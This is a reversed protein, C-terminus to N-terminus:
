RASIVASLAAVLDACIEGAEGSTPDLVAVPPLGDGPVVARMLLSEMLERDDRLHVMTQFRSGRSTRRQSIGVLKRGDLTVEGPGLGAFCVVESLRTREEPGDHVALRGVLRGDLRELGDRWWGGVAVMSRRLDAEFRHDTVPIFVDLWVVAGPVVLVAGGGSHRVVVDIGLGACREIDISEVSGGGSRQRSGLVLAPATVECIRVTVADPFDYSGPEASTVSHLAAAPGRRHELSIVGL